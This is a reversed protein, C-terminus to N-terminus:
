PQRARDTVLLQQPLVSRERGPSSLSYLGPQLIAELEALEGPQIMGPVRMTRGDGEFVLARPQRSSNRIRFVTPGPPLSGDIEIAHDTIAVDVFRVGSSSGAASRADRAAAAPSEEAPQEKRRCGGAALAVVAIVVIGTALLRRRDVVLRHVVLGLM